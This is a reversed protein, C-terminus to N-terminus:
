NKKKILSQLEKKAKEIKSNFSTNETIESIKEKLEYLEKDKDMVDLSLQNFESIDASRVSCGIIEGEANEITSYYARYYLIKGDAKRESDYTYNQGNLCKDYRKKWLEHQEKPVCDFISMGETLTINNASFREQLTKNVILIKYKTDIAFFTDTSSDLLSKMNYDKIKLQEQIRQMEEQTSQMEEMNQRMEEEQSTLEQTKQESDRLLKTTSEVTKANEISSAINEALKQIFDIQYNLYKHFSALEIVGFTKGEIMLPILLLSNPNAGGLGSRIKIYEDPIEVLNIPKKEFLCQWLLGYGRPIKDSSFKDRDYAYFAVQTLFEDNQELLYIGAQTSNTYKVLSSIIKKSLEQISSNDSRMIDVFQALGINIWDKQKEEERIELQKQQLNYVSEKLFYENKNNIEFDLNGNELEIIGNKVEEIYSVFREQAEILDVFDNLIGENKM